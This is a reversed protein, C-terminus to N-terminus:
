LAQRGISSQTAQSQPRRLVEDLRPAQYPAEAPANLTLEHPSGERSFREFLDEGTAYNPVMAQIVIDILFMVDDTALLMAEPLDKKKADGIRQPGQDFLDALVKGPNKKVESISLRDRQTAEVVNAVLKALSTAKEASLGYRKAVAEIRSASSPAAAEALWNDEDEELFSLAEFSFQSM